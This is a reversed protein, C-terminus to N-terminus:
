SFHDMEMPVPCLALENSLQVGFDSSPSAIMARHGCCFDEIVTFIDQKQLELLPRPISVWVFAFQPYSVVVPMHIVAFAPMESVLLHGQPIVRLCVDLPMDFHFSRGAGIVAIENVPTLSEAVVVEQTADFALEDFLLSSFTPPAFQVESLAVENFDVM